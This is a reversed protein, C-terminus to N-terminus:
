PFLSINIFMNVLKNDRNNGGGGLVIFVFHSLAFYRCYFVFFSEPGM